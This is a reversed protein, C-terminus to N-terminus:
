RAGRIRPPTEQRVQAAPDGRTGRPLKVAAIDDRDSFEVVRSLPGTGASVQEGGEVLGPGVSLLHEANAPWESARVEGGGGM